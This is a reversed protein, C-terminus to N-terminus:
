TGGADRYIKDTLLLAWDYFSNAKRGRGVWRSSYLKELTPLLRALKCRLGLLAAEASDCSKRKKEDGLYRALGAELFALNEFFSLNRLFLEGAAIFARFRRLPLEQRSFTGRPLTKALSLLGEVRETRERLDETLTVLGARELEEFDLTSSCGSAILKVPYAPVPEPRDGHILLMEARERLLKEAEAKTVRKEPAKKAKVRKSM